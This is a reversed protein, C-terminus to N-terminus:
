ESFQKPIHWIVKGIVDQVRIPGFVRSDISEEVLGIVRLEGGDLSQVQKILTGYVPHRFVVTDGPKLRGFLIPIKSILVFDGDQYAPYLSSETVKFLRLM